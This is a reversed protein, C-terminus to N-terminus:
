GSRRTAPWRRGLSLGVFTAALGGIVSAAVYAAATGARGARVLLASETMFTSWTTYGGCVGTGVFPRVHRSPPWREAVLALLAGLVLGGTVNVVFTAWPFAAPGAPWARAVGHRALSGVAGGAGVAALVTAPVRRRTRDPRDRGDQRDRGAAGRGRRAASRPQRPM